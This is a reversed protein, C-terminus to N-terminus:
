DVRTWKGGDRCIGLICGSIALVKGQLEMKSSYTKDRSPDWVKGGSYNNAGDPEMDWIINKGVNESAIEQGSGDFAKILTGCIKSGCAAVRIHGSNGNDDPITKYTGFVADAASAPQSLGLALALALGGCVAFHKM